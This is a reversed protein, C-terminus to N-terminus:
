EGHAVVPAAVQDSRVLDTPQDHVDCRNGVSCVLDARGEVVTGERGAEVAFGAAPRAPAGDRPEDALPPLAASLHGMGHAVTANLVILAEDGRGAELMWRAAVVHQVLSDGAEIAAHRADRLEDLQHDQLRGAGEARAAVASLHGVLGGLLAMALLPGAWGTADVDGQARVTELVIFAVIGFGAAGLGGRRGFRLASLAIPVVYLLVAAQGAGDVFWRLVTVATLLAVVVVLAVSRSRPAYRRSLAWGAGWSRAAWGRRDRM